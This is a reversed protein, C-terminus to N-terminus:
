MSERLQSREEDVRSGLSGGDATTEIKLKDLQARTLPPLAAPVRGERPLSRLPLFFHSFFVSSFDLRDRAGVLPAPSTLALRGPLRGGVSM